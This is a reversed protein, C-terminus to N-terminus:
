PQVPQRETLRIIRPAYEIPESIQLWITSSSGNLFWWMPINPTDPDTQLFVVGNLLNPKFGATRGLEYAANLNLQLPQKITSFGTIPREEQLVLFHTHAGFFTNVVVTFSGNSSVFDYKYHFNDINPRYAGNVLELEKADPYKALVAAQSDAIYRSFGDSAALEPSPVMVEGDVMITRQGSHVVLQSLHTMNRMPLPATMCVNSSAVLWIYCVFWYGFYHM